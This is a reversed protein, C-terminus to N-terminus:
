RCRQIVSKAIVLLMISIPRAAANGEATPLLHRTAGSSPLAAALVSAHRVRVGVGRGPSLPKFKSWGRGLSGTAQMAWAPCSTARTTSTTTSPRPISRSM